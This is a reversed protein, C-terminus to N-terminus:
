LDPERSSPDSDALFRWLRKRAKIYAIHAVEMEERNALIRNRENESILGGRINELLDCGEEVLRVYDRTAKACEKLLHARTHAMGQSAM